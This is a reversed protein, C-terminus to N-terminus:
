GHIPAGDPHPDGSAAAQTDGHGARNAPPNASVPFNASASAATGGSVDTASGAAADGIRRGIRTVAVGLHGDIEVLEGLGILVGHVRIRVAAALPRGLDLSMGPQLMRLERLSVPREGLDFSLPVPLDDLHTLALAQDDATAAADAAAAAAADFDDFGDADPDAGPPEPDYDDHEPDAAFGAAAARQRGHPSGALDALAHPDAFADGAHIDDTVVLEWPELVTLLGGQLSVRLRRAGTALWLSWVGDPGPPFGPPNCLVVDRPALSALEARTLLARGVELTLPVPIAGEDIRNHSAPREAALGAVVMLGLADAHLLVRLQEGAAAASLVVAFVHPLGPAPGARRLSVVRPRGRRGAGRVRGALDALAAELAAALLSEPLSGVELAPFRQNIWAVCAAEPVELVFRAGSWDAEVLWAGALELPPVALSAPELAVSWATGALPWDGHARNALLSRAQAENRSMRPLALM